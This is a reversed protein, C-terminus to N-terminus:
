SKKEGKPDLTSKFRFGLKKSTSVRLDNSMTQIQHVTIERHSNFDPTTLDFDLAYIIATEVIDRIRQEDIVDGAVNNFRYGFQRKGEVFFHGDVNVFARGILLGLDSLRNYKLSDALFNYMNIMGFYARMNDERIYSNKWVGHGKDFTFVNTHMQFIIVDGSFRIQAEYEGRDTYEVLVSADVSCVRSNLEEAIQELVKKFTAFVEVSRRFVAQKTSSKTTLLELIQPNCDPKKPM